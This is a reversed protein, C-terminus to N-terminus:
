RKRPARKAPAIPRNSRSRSTLAAGDGRPTPAVSDLSTGPYYSALIRRFDQGALARGNAGHQCMGVGHGHGRGELAWGGDTRSISFRTSLVKNLGFRRRLEVGSVTATGTFGDIVVSQARGSAGTREVAVSLVAPGIPQGSAEGLALLEEDKLEYRWTHRPGAACYEPGNPRSDAGGMLYPTARGFGTETSSAMRGGCDAHYVCDAIEGGYTLIAGATARVAATVREREASIGLYAQCHVADCLDYGATAHRVRQRLTYSRAAVAQAKLAEIEFGAPMEAPVTGLLYSELDIHNIAFPKGNAIGIEIEGRFAKMAGEAKGLLVVSSAPSAIRLTAGEVTQDGFKGVLRSGKVSVMWVDGPQAAVAATGAGPDRVFFSAGASVHLITAGALRTLGIRRPEQTDAWVRSCGAMNPIALLFILSLRMQVHM